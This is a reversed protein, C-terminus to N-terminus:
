KLIHMTTHATSLVSYDYDIGGCNFKSELFNWDSLLTVWLLLVTEIEPQSLILATLPLLSLFKLFSILLPLFSDQM